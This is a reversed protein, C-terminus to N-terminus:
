CNDKSSPNTEIVRKMCPQSGSKGVEQVSGVPYVVLLVMSVCALTCAAVMVHAAPYAPVTEPVLSAVHVGPVEEDSLTTFPKLPQVATHGLVSLVATFAAAHAHPEVLTHEASLMHKAAPSEPFPIQVGFGASHSLLFLLEALV